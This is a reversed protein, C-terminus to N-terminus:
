HSLWTSAVSFSCFQARYSCLLTSISMRDVWSHVVDVKSFYVFQKSSSQNCDSPWDVQISLIRNFNATIKVRWASFITSEPIKLGLSVKPSKDALSVNNMKLVRDWLSSVEPFSESLLKVKEAVHTTESIPSPFWLFFSPLSTKLSFISVVLGNSDTLSAALWNSPLQKPFGLVDSSENSFMSYISMCLNLFCVACIYFSKRRFFKVEVLSTM